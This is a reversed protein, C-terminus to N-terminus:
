GNLGSVLESLCVMFFIMEARIAPRNAAPANAWAVGAVGAFGAAGAVMAAGAAGAAMAVGAGAGAMFASALGSALASALVMVM